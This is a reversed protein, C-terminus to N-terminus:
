PTATPPIGTATPHQGDHPACLRLVTAQDELFDALSQCVATPNNQDVHHSAFHNMISQGM